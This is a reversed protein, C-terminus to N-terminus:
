RPLQGARRVLDLFEVRYGREDRGLSEAAIREIEGWGVVAVHPSGRLKMAFMAVASAFRVDVSASEASGPVIPHTLLRSEAGQPDKYRLQLFALEGTFASPSERAPERYRLEGSEPADFPVGAPVLNNLSNKGPGSEDYTSM